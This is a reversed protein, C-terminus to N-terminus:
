HLCHSHKPLLFGDPNAPTSDTSSQQGVFCGPHTRLLALPVSWPMQVTQLPSVSPKSYWFSSKQPTIECSWPIWAPNLILCCSILSTITQSLSPMGSGSLEQHCPPIEKFCPLPTYLVDTLHSLDFAVITLNRIKLQLPLLYQSTWTILGAHRFPCPFFTYVCNLSLNRFAKSQKSGCEKWPRIRHTSLLHTHLKSLQVPFRAQCSPWLARQTLVLSISLVWLSSARDTVALLCLLAEWLSPCQM